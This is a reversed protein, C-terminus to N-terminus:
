PLFREVDRAANWGEHLSARVLALWDATAGGSTAIAGLAEGIGRLAWLDGPVPAIVAALRTLEGRREALRRAIALVADADLPEVGVGAFPGLAARTLALAATRDAPGLVGLTQLAADWDAPDDRRAAGLADDAAAAREADGRTVAGFDLVALRGDRLLLADDRSAAAKVLGHRAGGAVFAVYLAASRDRDRGATAALPVGDLWPTVLVNQHGLRSVPAAVHLSPHDRLARHAVRQADSESDLDLEDLVRQRVEAIMGTADLGPFAAGLPRALADLLLLDGRVGIALGPRLVKVAVPDGDLVGRHVQALPTVAVPERELEDLERGPAVGWADRLAREIAKFPVPERAQESARRLEAALRGDGGDGLWRPDIADALRALALRGSPASRALKLAAEALARLRIDTPDGV